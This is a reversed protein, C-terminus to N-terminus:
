VMEYIKICHYMNGMKNKQIIHLLLRLPTLVEHLNNKM